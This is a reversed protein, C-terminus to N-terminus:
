GEITIMAGSDCAFDVGGSTHVFYLHYNGPPLDKLQMRATFGSPALNPNSLSQAVDPRQKGTNTVVQWVVTKGADELRISISNPVSRRDNGVIWGSLELDDGAALITPGAPTTNQGVRDINCAEAKRVVPLKAVPISIPRTDPVTQRTEIRPAAAGAPRQNAQPVPDTVERQRNCAAITLALLAIALARNSPM